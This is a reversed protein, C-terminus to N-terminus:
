DGRVRGIVVSKEPDGVRANTNFEALREWDFPLARTEGYRAELAFYELDDPVDAASDPWPLLPVPRRWYYLFHDHLWEFSVLDV